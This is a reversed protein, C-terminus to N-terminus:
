TSQNVSAPLDSLGSAPPVVDRVYEGNRCPQRVNSGSLSRSRNVAPLESAGKSPGESASASPKRDWPATTRVASSRGAASL